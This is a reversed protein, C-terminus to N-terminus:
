VTSKPEGLRAIRRDILDRMKKLEPVSLEYIWTDSKQGAFQVSDRWGSLKGQWRTARRLSLVALKPGADDAIILDAMGFIRQWINKVDASISAVDPWRLISIEERILGLRAIDVLRRNTVILCNGVRVVWYRILLFIAIMLVIAFSLQGFIGRSFLFFMFFFDVVIFCLAVILTIFNGLLFGRVIGLIEEGSDLEIKKLLNM